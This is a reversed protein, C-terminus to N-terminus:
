YIVIDGRSGLGRESDSVKLTRLMRESGGAGQKVGGDM